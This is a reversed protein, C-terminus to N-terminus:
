QLLRQWWKTNNPPPQNYPNPANPNYPNAAGPPRAYPNSYPNASYPNASGYPNAYPNVSSGPPRPAFPNPNSYGYPNPNGYPNAFPAAMGVMVPQEFMAGRNDFVRVSAPGGAPNFQANFNVQRMVQPMVSSLLGGGVPLQQVLMGNQYLGASAMNSGSIVGSVVYLAASVSQVSAIQVTIQNPNQNAMMGPMGMMGPIGPAGTNGIPIQNEVFQDDAGYARITALSGNLEFSEEFETSSYGTGGDLHIEQAMVGNVYIGAAKVGSGSITGRVEYERQTPDVLDVNSILVAIDGLRARPRGKGRHKASPMKTPIETTNASSPRAEDTMGLPPPSSLEAGTGFPTVLSRTVDRMAVGGGLEVMSHAAAARDDPEIVRGGRSAIINASARNGAADSARVQMGSVIREIAIDFRLRQAGPVTGVDFTQLRQDDAYIGASALGDGEIYGKVHAAGSDDAATSEIKVRLQTHGPNNTVPSERVPSAAIRAAEAAAAATAPADPHPMSRSLADLDSKVSDWEGIPIAGPHAALGTDIAKRDAILQALAQGSAARDGGELARSLSQADAAFSAVSGALPSVADRGSSSNLSGLMAFARDSIRTAVGKFDALEGGSTAPHASKADSAFARTPCRAFLAILAAAAM